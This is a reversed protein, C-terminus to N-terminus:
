SRSEAAPPATPVPSEIAVPASALPTPALPLEIPPAAAAEAEPVAAAEPAAAAEDPPVDEVEGEANVRTRPPDFLYRGQVLQRVVEPAIPDPKGYDDIYVDLGDMVNFAPQSFLKKLAQRRLSEDVDPQLFPSFDSALSLTDIAPLERAPPAAAPAPLPAAIVAAPVTSAAPVAAPAVVAPADAARAAALKRESWRRLSFRDAPPASDAM